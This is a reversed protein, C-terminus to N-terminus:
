IWHFYKYQFYVIKASDLNTFEPLTPSLHEIFILILMWWYINLTDLTFKWQFVELQILMKEMYM